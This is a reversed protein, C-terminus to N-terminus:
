EDCPNKISNMAEDILEQYRPSSQRANFRQLEPDWVIPNSRTEKLLRAWLDEPIEPGAYHPQEPNVPLGVMALAQRRIYNIQVPGTFPGETKDTIAKIFPAALLREAATLPDVQPEFSQDRIRGHEEIWKSFRDLPPLMGSFGYGRRGSVFPIGCSFMVSGNPWQTKLAEGDVSPGFEFLCIYSPPHPGGAKPEFVLHTIMGVVREDDLDSAQRERDGLRGKIFANIADLATDRGARQLSLATRLLQTGDLDDEPWRRLRNLERTALAVQPAPPLELMAVSSSIAPRDNRRFVWRERGSMGIRASAIAVQVSGTSDFPLNTEWIDASGEFKGHEDSFGDVMMTEDYIAKTSWDLRKEHQRALYIAFPQNCLPRVKGTADVHILKGALILKNGLSDTKISSWRVKVEQKELHDPFPAPVTEHDDISHSRTELGTEGDISMSSGGSYAASGTLCIALCLPIGTFIQANMAVGMSKLNARRFENLKNITETLNSHNM